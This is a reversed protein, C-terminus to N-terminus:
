IEDFKPFIFVEIYSSRKQWYPLNGTDIIFPLSEGVILNILYDSGVAVVRDKDDYFAVLIKTRSFDNESVNKVFGKAMNRSNHYTLAVNSVEFNLFKNTDFPIWGANILDIKYSKFKIDQSIETILSFPASKKPLIYSFKLIKSSSLITNEESDFLLYSLSIDKAAYNSSMNKLFGFICFYNGSRHEWIKEIEIEKKDILVEETKEADEEKTKNKEIVEKENGGKEKVTKDEKFDSTKSYSSEKIKLNLINLIFNKINLYLIKSKEKLNNIFETDLIKKLINAPDQLLDNLYLFYIIYALTLDIILLIIILKKLFFVGIKLFKNKLSVLLNELISITYNKIRSM